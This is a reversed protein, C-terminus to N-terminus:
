DLKELVNQLEEFNVEKFNFAPLEGTKQSREMSLFIKGNKMMVALVIISLKKPLQFFNFKKGVRQSSLVSKSDELIINCQTDELNLTDGVAIAYTDIKASERMNSFRDCNILGMQNSQMSYYMVEKVEVKGAKLNEEFLRKREKQLHDSYEKYTKLGLSDMMAVTEPCWTSDSVQTPGYRRARRLRKQCDRFDRNEAKKRSNAVGGITTGIRKVRCSFFKCRDCSAIKIPFGFDDFCGDLGGPGTNVNSFRPQNWNLQGNADHNGNFIMMSDLYNQTPMQVTFEQKARLEKGESDKAKLIMMGGSELIRGNSTTSLNALIIESKKYAEQSTITVCKGDSPFTNAKLIVRGGRTLNLITDRRPDICYETIPLNRYALVKFDNDTLLGGKSYSVVLEVRRNRSKETDSANTNVPKKEGFGEQKASVLGHLLLNRKVANTRNQSLVENFQDEGDSDTHGALKIETIKSKDFLAFFDKLKQKEASLLQHSNTEFYVTHNKTGQSFVSFHICLIGSLFLTLRM